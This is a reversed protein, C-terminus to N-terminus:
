SKEVALKVCLKDVLGAVLSFHIILLGYGNGIDIYHLHVFVREAAHLNRSDGM